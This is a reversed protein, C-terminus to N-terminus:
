IYRSHIRALEEKNHTIRDFFGLCQMFVLAGFLLSCNCRKELSPRSTYQLLYIDANSRSANGGKLWEDNFLDMVLVIVCSFESSFPSCSSPYQNFISLLDIAIFLYVVFQQNIIYSNTQFSCAYLHINIWLQDIKESIRNNHYYYPVFLPSM